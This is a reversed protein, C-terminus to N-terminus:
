VLKKFKMNTFLDIKFNKSRLKSLNAPTFREELALYLVINEKLKLDFEKLANYDLKRAYIALMACLYFTVLKQVILDFAFTYVERALRAKCKNFEGIVASLGSELEESYEAKVASLEFPEIELNLVSKSSLTSYALASFADACVKANLGKLVATKICCGGKFAVIDANTKELGDFLVQLDATQLVAEPIFAYKGKAQKVTEYLNKDPKAYLLEANEPMAGSEITEDSLVITLIKKM